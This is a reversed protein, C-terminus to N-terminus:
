IKRTPKERRMQNAVCILIGRDFGDSKGDATKEDVKYVYTKLDQKL